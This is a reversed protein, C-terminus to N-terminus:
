VTHLIVFILIQKKLFELDFRILKAIGKGFALKKEKSM